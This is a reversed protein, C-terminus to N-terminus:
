GRGRTVARPRVNSQTAQGEGTKPLQWAARKKEPGNTTNEQVHTQKMQINWNASVGARLLTASGPPGPRGEQPTLPVARTGVAARGGGPRAAVAPLPASPRAPERQQVSRGAGEEKHIGPTTEKM